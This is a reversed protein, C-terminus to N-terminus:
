SLYGVVVGLILDVFNTTKEEILGDFLYKMGIPHVLALLQLLIALCFVTIFVGRQSSIIPLFKNWASPSQYNLEDAKFEDTKELLLAFKTWKESFEDLPITYVGIAPDAILAGKANFGYLIIFHNGKWHLITPNYKENSKQFRAQLLPLTTEVPRSEIGIERFAEGLQEFNTGDRGSRLLEHIASLNVKKVGFFKLISGFCAAGCDTERQQLIIQPKQKIKKTRKIQLLM